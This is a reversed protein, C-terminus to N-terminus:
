RLTSFAIILVSAIRLVPAIWNLKKVPTNQTKYKTKFTEFDEIASFQSAKYLKATELIELNLAYDKESKFAEEEVATLDNNLWKKLLLDKDM